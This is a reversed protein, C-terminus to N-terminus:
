AFERASVRSDGRAEMSVLPQLRIWKPSFPASVLVFPARGALAAPALPHGVDHPFEQLLAGTTFPGSSAAPRTYGYPM